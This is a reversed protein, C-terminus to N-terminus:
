VRITLGHRSDAYEPEAIHPRHRDASEGVAPMGDDSDIRIGGFDLHDLAAPSRHDLGSQAIENGFPDCGTELVSALNELGGQWGHQFNSRIIEWDEGEGLGAHTLRVLAGDGQPTISVQVQTGGPEGRGYWQINIERDETLDTYEGSAYYGSNWAAYFRGGPRPALTAIDCMWERLATANTFAHYVQSPHADIFQEFTLNSTTM